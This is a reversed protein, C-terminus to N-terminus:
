PSGGEHESPLMLTDSSDDCVEMKAAKPTSICKWFRVGGGKAWLIIMGGLTEHPYKERASRLYRKTQTIHDATICSHGAKLELVFNKNIEVDLIGTEYINQDITTYYRVQRLAPIKREYLENIMVSEYVKESQGPGLKESAYVSIDECIKFLDDITHVCTCQRQFFRSRLMASEPM